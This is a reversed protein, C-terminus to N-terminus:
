QYAFFLYEANNNYYTTFSSLNFVNGNGKIWDSLKAIKYNMSQLYNFLDAPNSGYFESAGIGYEFILFPRQNELLNKAGKLINHEGGNASIKILKINTDPSIINDLKDIDIDLM